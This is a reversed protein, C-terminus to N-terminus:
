RGEEVRYKGGAPPGSQAPSLSPDGGLDGLLDQQMATSGSSQLSKAGEEWREGWRGEGKVLDNCEEQLHGQSHLHHSHIGVWDGLLDMATSGSM